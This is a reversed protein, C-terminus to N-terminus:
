TSRAGMMHFIVKVGLYIQFRHMIYYKELAHIMPMIYEMELMMHLMDNRTYPRIGVREALTPHEVNPPMVGFILKRAWTEVGGRIDVESRQLGNTPKKIAEVQNTTTKV